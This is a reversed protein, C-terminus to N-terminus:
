HTSSYITFRATQLDKWFNPYSKKVIQIDEIELEEFILSLPAFSMAMRHDKYTRISKKELVRKLENEVAIIRNTEKNKLTDTGKINLHQNIISM